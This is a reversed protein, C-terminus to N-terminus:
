QITLTPHPAFRQGPIFSQDKIMSEKYRKLEELVSADVEPLQYRLDGSDRSNPKANDNNFVISERALLEERLKVTSLAKSGELGNLLNFYHKLRRRSVYGDIFGDLLDKFYDRGERSDAYLLDTFYKIDRKLLAETFKTFMDTTSDILAQKESTHMPFNAKNKDVPYNLLEKAFDEMEEKIADMLDEYSGLGFFNLKVLSALAKFVTNRRDTPELKIPKVMNSSMYIAATLETMKTINEYKKQMSLKKNTQIAKVFNHTKNNDKATGQSIEDLYIFLKGDFVTALYNSKLTTDDVIM